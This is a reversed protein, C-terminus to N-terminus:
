IANEPYGGTIRDIEHSVEQTLTFGSLDRAVLGSQKNARLLGSLYVQFLCTIVIYYASKLM